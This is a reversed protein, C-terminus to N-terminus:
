DRREERLRRRGVSHAAAMCAWLILGSWVYSLVGHISLGTVIVSCIVLSAITVLMPLFVVRTITPERVLARIAVFTVLIHIVWFVVAAQVLGTATLSVGSLLAASLVLGAVAGVLGTGVRTALRVLM